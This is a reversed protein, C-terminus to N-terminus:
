FIPDFFYNQELFDATKLASSFAYQVDRLRSLKMEVLPDVYKEPIYQEPARDSETGSQGEMPEPTISDVRERTRAGHLSLHQFASLSSSTASSVQTAM